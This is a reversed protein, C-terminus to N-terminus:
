VLDKKHVRYGELGQGYPLEKRPITEIVLDSISEIYRFVREINSIPSNYSFIFENEKVPRRSIIVSNKIEDNNM